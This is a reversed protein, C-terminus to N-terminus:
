ADVEKLEVKVKPKKRPGLAAVRERVAQDVQEKLGASDRVQATATVAVTRGNVKTTKASAIGPVGEAAATAADKFGKRTIVAPAGDIDEAPFDKRGRFLSELLLLLLGIVVAGICAYLVWRDAVSADQLSSFWDPYPLIWPARDLYYLVVEAAVVVGFAALAAGLLVVLALNLTRVIM